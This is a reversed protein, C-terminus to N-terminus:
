QRAGQARVLGLQAAMRYLDVYRHEEVILGQADHRSFIGARRSRPLRM